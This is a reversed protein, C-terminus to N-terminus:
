HYFTATEGGNAANDVELVSAPTAVTAGNPGAVVVVASTGARFYPPAAVELEADSLVKFRAQQGTRGACFLVYRTQEFGAGRVKILQGASGENPSISFIEPASKKQSPAAAAVAPLALGILLGCSAIKFQQLM